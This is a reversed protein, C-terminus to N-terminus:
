RSLAALVAATDSLNGLVLARRPALCVLAPTVLIGDERARGPTQSLDVIEVECEGLAERVRQLNRVAAASNPANGAVYLRLQTGADPPPGGTM